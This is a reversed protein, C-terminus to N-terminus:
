GILGDLEFQVMEIKKVSRESECIWIASLFVLKQKKFTLFAM